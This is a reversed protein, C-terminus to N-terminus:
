NGTEEALAKSTKKLEELKKKCEQLLYGLRDNIGDINGLAADLEAQYRILDPHTKLYKEKEEYLEMLTKNM